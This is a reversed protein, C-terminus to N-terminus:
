MLWLAQNPILLVGVLGPVGAMLITQLVYNSIIDAQDASFGQMESFVNAIAKDLDTPEIKKTTSSLRGM